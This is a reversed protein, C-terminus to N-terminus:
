IIKEEVEANQDFLGVLMSPFAISDLYFFIKTLHDDEQQIYM